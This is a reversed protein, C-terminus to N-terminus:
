SPRRTLFEELLKYYKSEGIKYTSAVLPFVNHSRKIQGSLQKYDEETPEIFFLVSIFTTAKPFRNEIYQVNGDEFTVRAKNM